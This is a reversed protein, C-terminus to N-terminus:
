AHAAEKTGSGAFGATKSRSPSRPRPWSRRTTPRSSSPPARARRADEEDARHHPVRHRPRPQRDARRGAGAQRQHGARPRGRCAAEARRLDPGAAQGGSGGHRGRRAPAHGAQATEGGALGAGHDAPVRHERLRHAGPDPQLGPLHLRHAQRSIAGGARRDLAAVDTDLVSLKGGTPHDLCGIMNLLTSKGSGSPGVFAVFSAPEITFDIGKLAPVDVDGIRYTKVLREARILAM